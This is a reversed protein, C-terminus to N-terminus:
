LDAARFIRELWDLRGREIGLSAIDGLNSLIVLANPSADRIPIARLREAFAQNVARVEELHGLFRDLNWDPNEGRKSRLYQAVLYMSLMRYTTEESSLFPLHTAVMPRLRDLPPCGSTAMTLGILASVGVQVSTKKAYTRAPSEVVVEVEDWSTADRFAEVLGVLNVAVPCGPSRAPDLPCGPCRHFELRTWEPTPGTRGGQLALTAGDLSVVFRKTGGDPFRFVYVYEIRDHDPATDIM